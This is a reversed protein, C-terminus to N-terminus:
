PRLRRVADLGRGRLRPAHLRAQQDAALSSAAEAQRYLDDRRSRQAARANLAGLLSSSRAPSSARPSRRATTICCRCSSRRISRANTSSCRACSRTATRSSSSSRTTRPPHLRRGRGPVPLRARAARRSPHGAGGLAELAEDMAPTTSGFYIVGISADGAQRRTLVPAPVLKKATEFKRLLRQMNDVYVAGEESYRAYRDSRPAAPSSRAARRIRAPIPATPFATATSM